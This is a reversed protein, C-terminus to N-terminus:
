HCEATTEEHLFPSNKVVDDFSSCVFGPIYTRGVDAMWTFAAAHPKKTIESVLLEQLAKTAGLRPYAEFVKEVTESDIDELRLGFFDVGSGLHVLAIEPQKRAAIGISTHLAIADWVIEAKEESLGHEIVFGRAADAGDVEFRQGGSFKETLGLDHLVAGLYFLERDYKLANRQGLLGGFFYTRICHNCLFKPSAAEVLQTAKMCLESDPITIETLNIPAPM